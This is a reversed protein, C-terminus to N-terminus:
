VTYPLYFVSDLGGPGLYSLEQKEPFEHPLNCSPEWQSPEWEASDYQIYRYVYM